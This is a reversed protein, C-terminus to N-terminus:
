YCSRTDIRRPTANTDGTRFGFTAAAAEPSIASGNTQGAAAAIPATAHTRGPRRTEGLQDHLEVVRGVIALVPTPLEAEHLDRLANAVSTIVVRQEPTSGASVLAVPLDSPYGGSVLAARWTAAKARAMLLVLTTEASYRPISLSMEESRRHATAVVFSDALGRHTVPIGALLPVATASTVGPVLEFPLDHEALALAEEGVRGLVAPDGGKLRVVRLGAGASRVLLANIEDQTMSHRGCRKGVYVCEATLEALMRVDVLSDFLVLEAQQLARWGRLTMLDPDGPGAGVFWVCGNQPQPVRTRAKLRTPEDPIPALRRHDLTKM